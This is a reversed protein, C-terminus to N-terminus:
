RSVDAISKDRIKNGADQRQLRGQLDSLARLREASLLEVCM